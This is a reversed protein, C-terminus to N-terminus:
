YWTMCYRDKYYLNKINLYMRTLKAFNNKVRGYFVAEEPDLDEEAIREIMRGTLTFLELNTLELFDKKSKTVRVHVVEGPLSGKVFVVKGEYHAICKGENAYSEVALNELIFQNQMRPM